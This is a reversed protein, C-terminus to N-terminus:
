RLRPGSSLHSPVARRETRRSGLYAVMAILGYLIWFPLELLVRILTLTGLGEADFTGLGPVVSTDKDVPTSTGQVVAQLGFGLLSCLIGLSFARGSRSLIGAVLGGAGGLALLILPVLVPAANVGGLLEHSLLYAAVLQVLAPGLLLVRPTWLSAGPHAGAPPRADMPDRTASDGIAMVRQDAGAGPEVLCTEDPHQSSARLAAM